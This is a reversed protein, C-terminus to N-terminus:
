AEEDPKDEYEIGAREIEKQMIEEGKVFLMFGGIIFSCAGILYISQVSSQVGVFIVGWVGLVIMAFGWIKNWFNKSELYKPCNIEHSITELESKFEKSCGDCVWYNELQENKEAM